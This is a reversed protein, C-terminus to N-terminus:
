RSIGEQRKNKILVECSVNAWHKPHENLKDGDEPLEASVELVHRSQLM